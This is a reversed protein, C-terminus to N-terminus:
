SARASGVEHVVRGGRAVLTVNSRWYPRSSLFVDRFSLRRTALGAQMAPTRMVKVFKLASHPRMFNYHCRQIELHDSLHDESRSHCATRRCLYASGQRFTLNLREIFSTNLKHSDESEILADELRWKSGIVLKKEVKTIRDKRWTKMVQGYVCSVGFTRSIVSAYFKYGDTAILLFPAWPGRRATDFLRRVSRPSM